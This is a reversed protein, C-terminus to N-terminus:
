AKYHSSVLRETKKLWTCNDCNCSGIDHGMNAIRADVYDLPFELSHVLEDESKRAVGSCEDNHYLWECEVKYECAGCIQEGCHYNGGHICYYLKLNMKVQQRPYALAAILEEKM